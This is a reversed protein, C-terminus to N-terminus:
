YEVGCYSNGIDTCDKCIPSGMDTQTAVNSARKGAAIFFKVARTKVNQIKSYTNIGWMGAAYMLVPLVLTNYLKTYLTWGIGGCSRFKVILVGLTRTASKALENTRKDYM